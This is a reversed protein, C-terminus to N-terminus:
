ETQFPHSWNNLPIIRSFLIIEFGEMHLWYMVIKAIYPAVYCSFPWIHGKRGHMLMANKLSFFQNDIKVFTTYGKWLQWRCLLDLVKFMITFMEIYFKSVTAKHMKGGVRGVQWLGFNLSVQWLYRVAFVEGFYRRLFKSSSLVERVFFKTPGRIVIDVVTCCIPCCIPCHNHHFHRAIWTCM